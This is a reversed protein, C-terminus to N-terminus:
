TERQQLSPKRNKASHVSHLPERLSVVPLRGSSLPFHRPFLYLPRHELSKKKKGEEGLGMLGTSLGVVTVRIKDRGLGGKLRAPSNEFRRYWCMRSCDADAGENLTLSWCYSQAYSSDIAVPIM